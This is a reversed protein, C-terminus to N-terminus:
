LNEDLLGKRNDNKVNPIWSLSHFIWEFHQVIFFNRSLENGFFIL